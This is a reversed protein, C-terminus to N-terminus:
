NIKTVRSLAITNILLLILSVGGIQYTVRSLSELLGRYTELDEHELSIIGAINDHMQRTYPEGIKSEVRANYDVPASKSSRAVKTSFWTAGSLAMLLFIILINVAIISRRTRTKM